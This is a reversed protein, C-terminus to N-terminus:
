GHEIQSFSAALVPMRFSKEKRAVRPGLSARAVRGAM